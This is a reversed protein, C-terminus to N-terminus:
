VVFTMRIIIPDEWTSRIRIIGQDVGIVITNPVISDPNNNNAVTVGNGADGSRLSPNNGVSYYVTASSDVQPEPENDAGTYMLVFAGGNAPTAVDVLDDDVVIELTNFRDSQIVNAQINESELLGIVELGNTAALSGNVQLTKASFDGLILPNSTGTNAIYLNNDGVVNLGARHGILVNGSGVVSQGAEYGIVTNKSGEVNNLLSRAGLSTNKSGTTNKFLVQTGTATNYEGSINAFLARSGISTNLKGTTNNFINHYGIATNHSGDTNSALSQFGIATNKNGNTNNALSGEGILVNNDNNAFDVSTVTVLSDFNVAGTFNGGARPVAISEIANRARFPTFARRENSIGAIAEEFTVTPAIWERSDSLRPDDNTTVDPKNQIFRKSTPDSELWDSNLFKRDLEYM